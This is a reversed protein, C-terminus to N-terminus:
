YVGIIIIILYTLSNKLASIAKWALTYVSSVNINMLESIEDYSHNEFYLLNLVEKQRDPLKSYSSLLQQVKEKRIQSEIMIQETSFEYEPEAPNSQYNDEKYAKKLNHILKFKLAKLLYFRINNTQSLYEKRHWIELFLDQITDKILDRSSCISTGYNYLEQVERHYIHEFAKRNGSRFLDWLEFDPFSNFNESNLPKVSL